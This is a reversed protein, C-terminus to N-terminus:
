PGAGANTQLFWAFGCFSESPNTPINTPIKHTGKTLLVLFIRESPHNVGAMFKGM